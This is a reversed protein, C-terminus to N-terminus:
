HALRVGLQLDYAPCDFAEFIALLRGRNEDSLGQSDLRVHQWTWTAELAEEGHSWVLEGAKEVAEPFAEKLRELIERVPLDLLRDVENGYQLEQAIAAPSLTTGPRQRWFILTTKM